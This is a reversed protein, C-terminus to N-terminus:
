LVATLDVGKFKAKIEKKSSVEALKFLVALRDKLTGLNCGLQFCIGKNTAGSRILKILKLDSETYINLNM